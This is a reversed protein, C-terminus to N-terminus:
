LGVPRRLVPRAGGAVTGLDEGVEVFEDDEHFLDAMTIGMAAVVATVDCGASCRVLTNGTEPVYKLYLSPGDDDHAPCRARWESGTWLVPGRERLESLQADLCAPIRM